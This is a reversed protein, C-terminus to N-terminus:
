CSQLELLNGEPGRLHATRTSPGWEPRDAPPAVPAAGYRLCLEYAAAVDPVRSVPMARDRHGGRGQGRDGDSGYLRCGRPPAM